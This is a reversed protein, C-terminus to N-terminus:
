IPNIVRATFYWVELLQREAKLLREVLSELDLWLYRRSRDAKLGYYLNFGDVCAVVRDTM